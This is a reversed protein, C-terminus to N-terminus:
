EGEGQESVGIGPNPSASTMSALATERYRAVLAQLARVQPNDSPREAERIMESLRAKEAAIEDASLEVESPLDCGVPPHQESM